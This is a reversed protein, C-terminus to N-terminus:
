DCWGEGKILTPKYDDIKHTKVWLAIQKKQSGSSCETEDFRMRGEADEKGNRATYVVPDSDGYPNTWGQDLFHNIFVDNLENIGSANNKLDCNISRSSSISLTGGGNVLCLKLTNNIFKVATKHQALTANRQAGKTYGTYTVTGVAALIGIIAVVVLLEILTFGNKKKANFKNM